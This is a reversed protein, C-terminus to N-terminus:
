SGPFPSADFSFHFAGVSRIRFIKVLYYIALPATGCV